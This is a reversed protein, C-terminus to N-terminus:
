FYKALCGFLQDLQFSQPLWDYCGYQDLNVKIRTPLSDSYCVVIVGTSNQNIENLTSIISEEPGDLHVLLIQASQKKVEEVADKLHQVHMISAGAKEIGSKIQSYPDQNKDLILVSVGALSLSQLSPDENESVLTTAASTTSPLKFYFISGKGVTSDVWIEGHLLRILGECISLGLGTGGYKRTFSEDSQHFRGFIHMLKDPHIGIGTDEVYFQIGGGEPLALGFQVFGTHTFKLSNGILNMLVQRLRVPDTEIVLEELNAPIDLRIDIQQKGIKFKYTEYFDKLEILLDTVSVPNIHLNLENAEIKSVDIIDDVLNLLLQCNDNIIKIYKEREFSTLDSEKLLESFGVIGNMPTRIEHSMNALFNNKYINASEAKIRADKLEQEFAKQETIDRHTGLMRYPRGDRGIQCAARNHIWRYGGNKHAMRFEIEFLEIPHELYANLAEHVYAYDDPHLLMQWTEFADILEDKAYGLQSKWTASFHVRNSHILWDWVGLDTAKLALHYRREQEELKQLNAKQLSIDRLTIYILGHEKLPVSEWGLWISEENACEVKFEVQSVPQSLARGVVRQIDDRENAKVYEYIKKEYPIAQKEGLLAMFRKNYRLIQGMFDVICLADPSQYFLVDGDLFRAELNSAITKKVKLM